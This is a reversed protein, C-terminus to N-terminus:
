QIPMSRSTNEPFKRQRWESYAVILPVSLVVSISLVERVSKGLVIWDIAQWVIGVVLVIWLVRKAQGKRFFPRMVTFAAVVAFILILEIFM